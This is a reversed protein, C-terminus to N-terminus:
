DKYEVTIAQHAGLEVEVISAPIEKRLEISERWDIWAAGFTGTEEESINRIRNVDTNHAAVFRKVTISKFVRGVPEDYARRGIEVTGDRFMRVESTINKFLADRQAIKIIKNRPVTINTPVGSKTERYSAELMM